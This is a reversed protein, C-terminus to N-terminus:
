EKKIQTSLISTLIKFCPNSIYHHIYIKRTNVELLYGLLSNFFIIIILIANPLSYFLLGEKKKVHLIKVQQQTATDLTKLVSKYSQNIQFIEEPKLGVTKSGIQKGKFNYKNDIIQQNILILSKCTNALSKLVEASKQIKGTLKEWNSGLHILASSCETIYKPYKDILLTHCDPDKVLSVSL